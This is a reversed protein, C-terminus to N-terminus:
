GLGRSGTPLSDGDQLADESVDLPLIRTVQSWEMDKQLDKAHRDYYYTKYLSEPWSSTDADPAYYGNKVVTEAVCDM